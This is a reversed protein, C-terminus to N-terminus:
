AFLESLLEDDTIDDLSQPTPGACPGFLALRQFMEARRECEQYCDFGSETHFVENSSDFVTFRHKGNEDKDRVWM